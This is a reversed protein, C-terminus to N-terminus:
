TKYFDDIEKLKIKEFEKLKIEQQKLELEKLELEKLEQQKLEQQKIEKQKLKTLIELIFINNIANNKSLEVIKNINKLVFEIDLDQRNLISYFDWDMTINDSIYSLPLIRSFINQYTIFYQSDNCFFKTNYKNFVKIQNEISLTTLININMYFQDNIGDFENIYRDILKLLNEELLNEGLLNNKINVIIRYSVDNHFIKKLNWPKHPYKLALIIIYTFSSIEEYDINQDLNFNNCLENFNELTLNINNFTLNINNFNVNLDYLTLKEKYSNILNNLENIQSM